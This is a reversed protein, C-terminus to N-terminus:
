WPKTSASTRREAMLAAECEGDDRGVTASDRAATAATLTFAVAAVAAAFEGADLTGRFKDACALLHMEVDQGVQSRRPSRM